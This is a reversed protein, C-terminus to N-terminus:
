IIGIFYLNKFKNKNKFANNNTLGLQTLYLRDLFPKYKVDNYDIRIGNTKISLFDIKVDKVLSDIIKFLDKKKGYLKKYLIVEGDKIIYIKNIKIVDPLSTFQQIFLDTYLMYPNILIDTSIDEENTNYIKVIDIGKKISKKIDIKNIFNSNNLVEFGSIEKGGKFNLNNKSNSKLLSILKKSMGINIIEEKNIVKYRVKFIKLITESINGIDVDYFNKLNNSFNDLKKFYIIQKVFDFVSFGKKKYKPLLLFIFYNYFKNVSIIENNIDIGLSDKVTTIGKNIKLSFYKNLSISDFKLLIFYIILLIAIIFLLYHKLGSVQSFIKNGFYNYFDISGYTSNFLDKFYNNFGMGLIGNFINFIIWIFLILFIINLIFLLYKKAKYTNKLIISFLVSNIVIFLSIISLTIIILINDIFKYINGLYVLIIMLIIISLNTYFASKFFNINFFKGVLIIFLLLLTLCILLISFTVYRDYIYNYNGKNLITNTLGVPIDGTLYKLFYENGNDFIAKYNTKSDLALDKIDINEAQKIRTKDIYNKIFNVDNNLYGSNYFIDAIGNKIIYEYTKNLDQKQELNNVLYDNIYESFNQDYINNKFVEEVRSKIDGVLDVKLVEDTNVYFDQQNGDNFGFDFGADNGNSSTADFFYVKDFIKVETWQHGVGGIIGYGNKNESGLFGTIKEAKFGLYEAIIRFLDNASECYLGDSSYLFDLFEPSLDEKKQYPNYRKNKIFAYFNILTKLKDGGNESIKNDIISKLKDSILNAEYGNYHTSNYAYFTNNTGYVFVKKYLSKDKKYDDETIKSIGYVIEGDNNLKGDYLFYGYDYKISYNIGKTTVFKYGYPLTIENIKTRIIYDPNSDYDLSNISKDYTGDNNKIFYGLDYTTKNFVYWNQNKLNLLENKKKLKEENNFFYESEKEKSIIKVDLPKNQKNLSETNNENKNSFINTSKNEVKPNEINEKSTHFFSFIIGFIIILTGFLITFILYKNGKYKEIIKDEKKHIYGFKDRIEDYSYIKDLHFINGGNLEKLIADELNIEAEIKLNTILLEKINENALNDKLYFFITQKYNEEFSLISYNKTFFNYYKDNLYLDNIKQSNSLQLNLKELTTM